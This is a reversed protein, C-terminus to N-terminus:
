VSRHAVHESLPLSDGDEDIVAISQSNGTMTKGQKDIFTRMGTMTGGPIDPFGVAPKSEKEQFSESVEKFSKRSWSRPSLILLVLRKTGAWHNQARDSKKFLSPFSALCAVMIATYSNSQLNLELASELATLSSQFLPSKCVTQEISSWMYLWSQDPETSYSSIVIVRIIAFVM